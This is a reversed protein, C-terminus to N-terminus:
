KLQGGDVVFIGGTAFSARSSALFSVFDAIEEPKGLRGLSVENELVREVHSPDESLKRDWVSGKFLINGPAIANIRIGKKGLPRAIGRVYANLASKSSAYTIPAGSLINLGALSSICVISGKTKSLHEISAEVINTMSLFNAKFIRTWEEM